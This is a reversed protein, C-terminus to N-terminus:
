AGEGTLVHRWERDLTHVWLNVSRQEETSMDAFVITHCMTNALAKVCHWCPAHTVYAVRIRDPDAQLLANVEAHVGDCGICPAKSCNPTGRPRGNYGAGLIRNHEDVLVCGVQRKACDARRALTEALAQMTETITPRM